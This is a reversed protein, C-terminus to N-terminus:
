KYEATVRPVVVRLTKESAPSDNEDLDQIRAFTGIM